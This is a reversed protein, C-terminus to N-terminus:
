ATRKPIIEQCRKLVVVKEHSGFYIQLLGVGEVKLFTEVRGVRVM